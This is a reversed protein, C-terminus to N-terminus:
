KKYDYSAPSLVDVDNVDSSPVSMNMFLDSISTSQNIATTHAVPDQTPSPISLSLGKLNNSSAKDSTNSKKRVIATTSPTRSIANVDSNLASRPPTSASSGPDQNEEEIPDMRRNGAQNPNPAKAPSRKSM